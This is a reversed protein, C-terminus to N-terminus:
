YFLIVKNKGKGVGRSHGKYREKDLFYMRNEKNVKWIYDSSKVRIIKLLTTFIEKKLM